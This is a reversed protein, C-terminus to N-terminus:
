VSMVWMDQARMWAAVAGWKAEALAVGGQLRRAGSKQVLPCRRSSQCNCRLNKERRPARLGSSTTTFPRSPVSEACFPSPHPPSLLRSKLQRIRVDCVAGCAARVLNDETIRAHEKRRNSTNLSRGYQWATSVNDVGGAGAAAGGGQPRTMIESMRGLLMRNEHEIKSYRDELMQERKLNRRAQPPPRPTILAVGPPALAGSVVM